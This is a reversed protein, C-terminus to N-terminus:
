KLKTGYHTVLYYKWSGVAIWLWILNFNKMVIGNYHPRSKKWKESMFFNFTSKISNILSETCDAKKCKFYWWWISESFNTSPGVFYVGLNNFRNQISTYNYYYDSTLRKHTSRNLSLLYNARRQATKDLNASWTYIKLWLSKRETNHWDIWTNKVKVFDINWWTLNGWWAFTPLVAIVIFFLYKLM